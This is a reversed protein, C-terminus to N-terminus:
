FLRLDKNACGLTFGLLSQSPLDDNLSVGFLRYTPQKGGYKNSNSLFDWPIKLDEPFEIDKLLKQCGGSEDYIFRKLHITL